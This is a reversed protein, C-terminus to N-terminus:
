LLDLYKKQEIKYKKLFNKMHFSLPSDTNNKIPM